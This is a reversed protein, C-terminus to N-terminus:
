KELDLWFREIGGLVSELWAGEGPVSAVALAERIQQEITELSGLM